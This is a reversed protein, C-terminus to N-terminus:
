KKVVGLVEGTECNIRLLERRQLGYKGNPVEYDGISGSSRHMIIETGDRSDIMPSKCSTENLTVGEEPTFAEPANEPQRLIDGAVPAASTGCSIVLFGTFLYILVRKM